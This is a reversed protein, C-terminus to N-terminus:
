PLASREGQIVFGAWNFPSQWRPERWMSVQAERLAAAPSLGRKLLQTYFRSMLEATARDRVDWLSAVVRPAGAYMFGRTLGILGEGHIDRGLATRCASLVVLDANLKLNYIDHLRVFGDQARGDRDVLSLVLGSLQPTASNILGHTAFHVVRFSAVDPGLAAARSAEFDVAYRSRPRGAVGAIAEAEDRTYALRTFRAIGSASAARLVDPRDTRRPASASPGRRVRADDPELVPDAFVAVQNQARRRSGANRIVSLASASPVNVIEYAAVMPESKGPRPLAAFPIYHLAGDAVILLRKETLGAAIPALILDSLRSAARSAPGWMERRNAVLRSNSFASVAPLGLL